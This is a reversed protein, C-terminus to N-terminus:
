KGLFYLRRKYLYNCIPYKRRYKMRKFNRREVNKFDKFFSILSPASFEAAPSLCVWVDVTVFM